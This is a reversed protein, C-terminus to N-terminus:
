LTIDAGDDEDDLDDRNVRRRRSPREDDDDDPARRAPPQYGPMDPAKESAKLEAEPVPKGDLYTATRTDFVRGKRDKLFARPHGDLKYTSPFHGGPKDPSQVKGALMDRYFARYDYHHEPSDPNPDIKLKSAVGDYWQRFDADGPADAPAAAETPLVEGPANAAARDARAKTVAQEIPVGERVLRQIERALAIDEGSPGAGEIAGVRAGIGAADTRRALPTLLRGAIASRNMAALAATTALPHTVLGGAVALPAMWSGARENLGGHEPTLRFTLDAKARQLEPLLSATKTEPHKAVFEALGPADGASGGATGTNEGQRQLALRIQNVDTKRTGIKTNLGLLARDEEVAKIADQVKKTTAAQRKEATAIQARIKAMEADRRAKPAKLAARVAAVDAEPPLKPGPVATDDGVLKRLNGTLRKEDAAASKSPKGPLGVAKRAAERKASGTAYLENLAKYPGEDVMQKAVFAARRLPAEAEGPADSGGVKAARMLTRRLGNLQREPLMIVGPGDPAAAPGHVLDGMSEPALRVTGPEGEIFGPVADDVPPRTGSAHPRAADGGVVDGMTERPLRVTGPEDVFGPVADADGGARAVPGQTRYNELIKVQQELAARIHPATELDNIAQHMSEVIPTVDRMAAAEPSADIENKLARYPKSTEVRHENEINDLIQRARDATETKVAHKAADIDERYAIDAARAARRAARAAEKTESVAAKLTQPAERYDFDNKDKFQQEITDAIRSAGRKAAAGIGRDDPTLGRLEENFVGGKGASTATVKAGKGEAEILARAKAGKSNLTKAQFTEGAAGGAGAMLISLPDSVAEKAAEYRQGEAGASLAATVPATAVHGGLGATAGRVVSPLVGAGPILGALPAGIFKGGAKAALMGASGPMFGGVLQTAARYAPAAAQDAEQTSAVPEGGSSLLAAKLAMANAARPGGGAKVFTDAFQDAKADTIGFTEPGLSVENAALQEATAKDVPADGLLNGARAALKQGYGLTMVDDLGRLAQRRKAPDLLAAGKTAAVDAGVTALAGTGHVVSKFARKFFGEDKQPTTAQEFKQEARQKGTAIDASIEDSMPNDVLRGDRTKFKGAPLGSEESLQARQRKQREEKSLGPTLWEPRSADDAPGDMEALAAAFPNSAAAPAAKPAPAAPAEADMEALAAAFPNSAM